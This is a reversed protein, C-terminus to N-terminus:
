QARRWVRLQNNAPMDNDEILALGAEAALEDIMEADRIGSRPDRQRLWQDFSANSSSTFDGRYRFPGYICVVAENGLVEPLRRFLGRVADESMIHLTNASFVYDSAPMAWHSDLADLILPAPLNPRDVQQLRLALWDVNDAVDSSQWLLWPMKESFFEAHQGTGGGIELVRASCGQPMGPRERRPQFHRQLVDLIPQKNNECAQSWPLEPTM